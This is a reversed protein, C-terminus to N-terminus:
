ELLNLGRFKGTCDLMFCIDVKEADRLEEFIRTIRLNSLELRAIKLELARSEKEEVANSSSIDKKMEEYKRKLSLTAKKEKKIKLSEEMRKIKLKLREQRSAERALSTEDSDLVVPELPVSRKDIKVSLASKKALWEKMLMDQFTSVPEPGSSPM